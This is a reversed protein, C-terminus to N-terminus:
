REKILRFALESTNEGYTYSMLNRKQLMDLWWEGDEILEYSFAEKITDRPFKVNVGNIELFDKLTKWALEFTFEYIQIVGAKELKSLETKEM